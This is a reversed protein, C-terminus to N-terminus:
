ACVDNAKLMGLDEKTLSGGEVRAPSMVANAKLMGLDEKTLSGGEVRAPSMVTYNDEILTQGYVPGLKEDVSIHYDQMGEKTAPYVPNDQYRSERTEGNSSLTSFPQGITEYLPGEYIPNPVMSHVKM